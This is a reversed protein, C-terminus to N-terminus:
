PEFEAPEIQQSNTQLDHRHNSPQPKVASEACFPWIMGTYIMDIVFRVLLTQAEGYM